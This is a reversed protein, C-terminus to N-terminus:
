SLPKIGLFRTRSGALEPRQYRDAILAVAFMTAYVLTTHQYAIVLGLWHASQLGFYRKAWAFHREITVGTDFLQLQQLIRPYKRLRGFRRILSRLFWALFNVIAVLGKANM